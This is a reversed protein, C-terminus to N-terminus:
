ISFFDKFDYISSGIEDTQIFEPLIPYPSVDFLFNLERKRRRFFEPSAEPYIYVTDRSPIGIYFKEGAMQRALSPFEPLLVIGSDIATFEGLKFYTNGTIEDDIISFQDAFVMFKARMNTMVSEYIQEFTMGLKDLDDQVLFRFAGYGFDYGIYARIGELYYKYVYNDYSPSLMKENLLRVDFYESIEKGPDAELGSKNVVDDPLKLMPAFHESLIEDIEKQPTDLVYKLYLNDLYAKIVADDGDQLWSISKEDRNIEMRLHPYTLDLWSFVYDAFSKLTLRSHSDTVHWFGHNHKGREIEIRKDIDAASDYEFRVEPITIEEDNQSFIFFIRKRWSEELLYLREITEDTCFSGKIRRLEVNIQSVPDIPSESEVTEYHDLHQLNSWPNEIQKFFIGEETLTSGDAILSEGLHESERSTRILNWLVDPIESKRLYDILEFNIPQYKPLANERTEFDLSHLTFFKHLGLRISRTPLQIKLSFEGFNFEGILLSYSNELYEIWVTRCNLQSSINKALAPDIGYHSTEIIGVWGEINPTILIERQSRSNLYFNEANEQVLEFDIKAIEASYEKLYESVISKVMFKDAQAYICAINLSM